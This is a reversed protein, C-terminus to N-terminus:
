MYKTGNSLNTVFFKKQQIFETYRICYHLKGKEHCLIVSYGEEDEYLNLLLSPKALPLEM